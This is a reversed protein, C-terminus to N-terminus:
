QIVLLPRADKWLEDLRYFARQQPSFVHAIVDGFDILIWGGDSTGEIRKSEVGMEAARDLLARLLTNIQRETGGTCLVFFDSIISIDRLDLLVIDDAKRDAVSEVLARALQEPSTRVQTDVALYAGDKKRM